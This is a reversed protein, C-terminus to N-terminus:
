SDWEWLECKQTLRTSESYMYVRDNCYV